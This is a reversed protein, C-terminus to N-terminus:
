QHIIMFKMWDKQATPESSHKSKFYVRKEFIGQFLEVHYDQFMTALLSRHILLRTGHSLLDRSYPDDEYGEQWIEYKVVCEDNDYLDFNRYVLGYKEILYRPLSLITSYGLFLPSNSTMSVVPLSPSRLILEDTPLFQRTTLHERAQQLTVFEDDDFRVLELVNWSDELLEESPLIGQKVLSSHIFTALRYSNSYGDHQSVVRKEYLTLWERAVPKRIIEAQDSKLESLWKDENSVSLPSIDHPRPQINSLKFEPDVPQIIRWLAEVQEIDVGTKEVIENLLQNFIYLVNQEFSTIIPVYPYGQPHVYDNWENKLKETTKEVTWGEQKLTQEIKALVAEQDLSLIHCCSAIQRQITRLTRKTFLKVFQFSPSIHLLRFTSSAVRSSYRYEVREIKRQIQKSVTGHQLVSQLLKLILMKWQFHNVDLYEAIKDVYPLLLQPAHYSVAYLIILLRSKVLTDTHSLREIFVPLTLEPRALCLERYADVLRNGADIDVTDLVDVLFHIAAQHWDDAKASYAKLWQYRNQRPLQAFLEQCYHLYDDYVKKLKEVDELVYYANAVLGPVEFGSYETLSCYTEVATIPM